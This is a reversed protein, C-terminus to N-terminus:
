QKIRRLLEDKNATYPPEWFDTERDIWEDYESESMMTSLKDSVVRRVHSLKDLVEKEKFFLVL